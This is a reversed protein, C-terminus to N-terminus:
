FRNFGIANREEQTAYSVEELNYIDTLSMPKDTVYKKGLHTILKNADDVSLLDFKHEVILRGKRLLAKDIKERSTNFTAIIQISLCDGLIGDTLNLINSIGQKSSQNSEREFVVREADEIVLVSNTHELLFPIFEPSSISESLYPPFFIIRKKLLTCLHRIYTTKGTGPTGHLLVLGKNGQNLKQVIKEHKEMFSSGYNMPIDIEKVKEIDREITHFGRIGSSVLYVKPSNTKENRNEKVAELIEDLATENSYYVTPYVKINFEGETYKSLNNTYYDDLDDVSSGDLLVLKCKLHIMTDNKAYLLYKPYVKNAKYFKSHWALEYGLKEISNVVSYECCESFKFYLPVRKYFNIYLNAAPFDEPYERDYLNSTVNINQLLNVVRPAM